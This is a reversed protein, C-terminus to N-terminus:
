RRRRNTTQVLAEAVEHLKKNQSQSAEVLLDFATKEDTGRAVMLIGKAQGIVDRRRLAVRLNDSMRQANEQLQMNAVLIGAQDAFLGLLREARDGFVAPERAYVKIAGLSMEGLAMPASLAARWGLQEAQAAWRPWRPESALDDVRVVSRSAAAALCPGENLEYQLADAQEVLHDTAAASTKHGKPSVLTVGAGAAGPISELALTTILRVVTDVTEHSLLVGSMRAFVTALEDAAATPATEAPGDSGFGDGEYTM